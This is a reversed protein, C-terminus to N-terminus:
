AGTVGVRRGQEIRAAAFADPYKSDIPQSVERRCTACFIVGNAYKQGCCDFQERGYKWRIPNLKANLEALGTRYETIYTAIKARDLGDLTVTHESPHEVEEYAYIAEFSPVRDGWSPEPLVAGKAEICEAEHYLCAMVEERQDEFGTGRNKVTDPTAQTGRFDALCKQVDLNDAERSQNLSLLRCGASFSLGDLLIGAVLRRRKDDLARYAPMRYLTQKPTVTM